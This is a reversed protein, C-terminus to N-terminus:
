IRRRFQAWVNNQNVDAHGGEITEIGPPTQLL